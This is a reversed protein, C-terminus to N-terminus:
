ARGRLSLLRNRLPLLYLDWVRGCCHIFCRRTLLYDLAGLQADKSRCHGRAADLLRYGAIVEFLAKAYRHYLATLARNWRLKSYTV